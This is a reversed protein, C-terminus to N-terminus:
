KIVTGRGELADTIPNDTRGDSIIVESAGEEFLQRLALLKRKIRGESTAEWKAIEEQSMTNIVSEPNDKDKLFGPAEILQIIKEAKLERQLVRVVDDNESNIATNNEDIIPQTIVPVYGNDLLLNLLEKNVQKPKGSFDRKIMLKSGEHVKIGVNRKGQIARGDIGSLGIANIGNQQLLEVVRKNKLGSYAMMMIDIAEKDSYVSSYGSVSTLVKKEKGLEKALKDREYNAGHVIIYQINQKGLSALDKAIAEINISKGGGIKVIIL